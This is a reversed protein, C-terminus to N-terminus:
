VIDDTYHIAIKKETITAYFQCSLNSDIAWNNKYLENPKKQPTHGFIQNVGNIPKFERADCWIIGGESAKGGRSKGAQLLKHPRNGIFADDSANLCDNKFHNNFEDLTNYLANQVGAHTCLYDYAFHYFKLKRWHNEKMPNAMVNNIADQKEQTYGSCKYFENFAYSVDHNGFLHIRNKQELSSVLWSAMEANKEPTDYWNDFYDGLFVIFDPQVSRIIKEARIHNLHLDPIILYM